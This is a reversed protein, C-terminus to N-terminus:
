FLCDYRMLISPCPDSARSASRIEHARRHIQYVISIFLNYYVFSQPQALTRIQKQENQRLLRLEKDM